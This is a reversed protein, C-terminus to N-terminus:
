SVSSPDREETARVPSRVTANVARVVADADGATVLPELAALRDSLWRADIPARRARLLKAHRTPEVQEDDYFLAENLKEGPRIGIIRVEIDRGPEKGSLRVMQHALDMIRVPEGMDLVFIDGSEGAGGAEIVLQVAEPITMFFRTMREDTVTVPGGSEIQARFIPIVSGSSALVNGFRVAMFRTETGAQAAAEVVWECLAKSAGMVTQPNVAKDTSVLVFRAVEFEGALVALDRTALTNNRIAELPNLEMMPVHKYAAAHFVVQPRHEHFLARMRRHDKVDALVQHVGVVGRGALERGIEFLSTEGNDLLILRAPGCRAIQRSLEAGISGGAGTVLVIRGNLYAGITSLDLRVPRRGLLDEVRVDRLQALGISGALLEDPGPLMRVPVDHNRATQVIAGRVRGDASPMAIVIEDPRNAALVRDLSELTGIVKVNHLRMTQKSPDDDLIGIPTYGSRPKVMERVILEGANGAGIVLVERGIAFPAAREFAIRTVARAALLFFATLILDLAVIGRPVPTLADRIGPTPWVFFVAYVVAEAVVCARMLVVVDRLSTYRWWRAYVGLAILVAIKVPVVIWIGRDRLDEWPAVLTNFRFFFALYWAAAILLADIVVDLWRHRSLVGM